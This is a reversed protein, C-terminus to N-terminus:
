CGLSSFIFGLFVYLGSFALTRLKLRPSQWCYSFGCGSPLIRSHYTILNMNSKTTTAAAATATATIVRPLTTFYSHSKSSVKHCKRLCSKIPRLFQFWFCCFYFSFWSDLLHRKHPGGPSMNLAWICISLWISIATVTHCTGSVLSIGSAM